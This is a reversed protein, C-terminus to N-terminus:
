KHLAANGEEGAVRSAERSLLFDAAFKGWLKAETKAM